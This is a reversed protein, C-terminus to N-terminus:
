REARGSVEHLAGVRAGDHASHASGEGRGPSPAEDHGGNLWFIAAALLLGLACTLVVSQTASTM